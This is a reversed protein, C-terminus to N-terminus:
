MHVSFLILFDGSCPPPDEWGEAQFPIGGCQDWRGCMRSWHGKSCDQPDLKGIDAAELAPPIERHVRKPNCHRSETFLKAKQNLKTM